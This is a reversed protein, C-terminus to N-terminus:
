PITAKAQINEAPRRRRRAPKGFQGSWFELGKTADFPNKDNREFAEGRLGWEDSASDQASAWKIGM